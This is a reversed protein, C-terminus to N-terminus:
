RSRRVLWPGDFGSRVKHYGLFQSEAAKPGLLIIRTRFRSTGADLGPRGAERFRGPAFRGARGWSTEKRREEPLSNRRFGEVIPRDISAVPWRQAAVFEEYSLDPM